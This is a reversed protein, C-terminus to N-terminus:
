ALPDHSFAATARVRDLLPVKRREGVLHLEEPLGARYGHRAHEKRFMGLPRACHCDPRELPDRHSQPAFPRRRWAEPAGEVARVSLALPCASVEKKVHGRPVVTHGTAANLKRDHARCGAALGCSGAAGGRAAAAPPVATRHAETAVTLPRHHTQGRRQAPANAPLVRMLPGCRGM